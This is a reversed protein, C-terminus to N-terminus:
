SSLERALQAAQQGGLWTRRTMNALYDRGQKKNVIMRMQLAIHGSTVAM